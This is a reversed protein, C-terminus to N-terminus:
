WDGSLRCRPVRWNCRSPPRTPLISRASSGICRSRDQCDRPGMLGALLRDDLEFKAPPDDWNTVETWYIWAFAPSANTEVSHTIEWAVAVM